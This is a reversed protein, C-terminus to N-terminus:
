AKPHKSYKEISACYKQWDGDVVADLMAAAVTPYLEQAKEALVHDNESRQYGTTPKKVLDIHYNTNM